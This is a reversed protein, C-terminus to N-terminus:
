RSGFAYGYAGASACQNPVVPTFWSISPVTTRMRAIRLV